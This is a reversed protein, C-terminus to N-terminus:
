GAFAGIASVVVLLIVIGVMLLAAALRPHTPREDNM